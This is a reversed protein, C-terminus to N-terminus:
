VHGLALSQRSFPLTDVVAVVVFAAVVAAAVVVVSYVEVVFVVVYNEVVNWAKLHSM